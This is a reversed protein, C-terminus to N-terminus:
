SQGLPCALDAQFCPSPGYSTWAFIFFGLPLTISGILMAPLRAEPPVPRNENLCSSTVKAYHREQYRSALLGLSSSRDTEASQLFLFLLHFVYPIVTFFAGFMGIAVVLALGLNLSRDLMFISLPPVYQPDTSSVICLKTLPFVLFIPFLLPSPVYSLSVLQASPSAM